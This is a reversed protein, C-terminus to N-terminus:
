QQELLKVLEAEYDSTQESFFGVHSNILNGAKDFVFSSPMGLLDFSRAVKGEPDYGIVFEPNLEDLFPSADKMDSDLNIAIVILGRDKYRNHM